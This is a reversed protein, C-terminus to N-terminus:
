LFLKKCIGEAQTPFGTPDCTGYDMQFPPCDPPDVPCACGADKWKQLAELYADVNPLNMDMFGPDVVETCCMGDVFLDCKIEDITPNCLQAIYLKDEVAKTLEAAYEPNTCDMPPSGGIGGMGGMGGVGVVATVGPGREGSGGEGPWPSVELDGTCGHALCLGATVAMLVFFRRMM